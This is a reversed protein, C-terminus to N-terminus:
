WGGVAAHLSLLVGELVGEVDVGLADWLDLQVLVPRDENVLVPVVPLDAEGVLVHGDKAVLAELQGWPGRVALGDLVADDVKLLCGWGLFFFVGWIFFFVGVGRGRRVCIPSTPSSVCSMHVQM